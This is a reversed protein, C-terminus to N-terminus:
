RHCAPGGWTLGAEPGRDASGRLPGPASRSRRALITRSPGSRRPGLNDARHYRLKGMAAGDWSKIIRAILVIRRYGSLLRSLDSLESRTPPLALLGRAPSLM